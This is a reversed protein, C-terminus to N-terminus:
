KGPPLASLVRADSCIIKGSMWGASNSSYQPKRELFRTMKSWYAKRKAADESALEKMRRNYKRTEAAEAMRKRHGEVKDPDPGDGFKIPKYQKTFKIKQPM